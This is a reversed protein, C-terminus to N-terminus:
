DLQQSWGPRRGAPVGARSSACGRGGPILLAIMGAAARVDTRFLGPVSVVAVAAGVTGAAAALVARPLGCLRRVGRNVLGSAQFRDVMSQLRGDYFHVRLDVREPHPQRLGRQRRTTAWLPPSARRAPVSRQDRVTPHTIRGRRGTGPSGPRLSPAPRFNPCEDSEAGPIKRHHKLCPRLAPRHSSLLM